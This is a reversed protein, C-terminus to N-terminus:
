LHSLSLGLLLYNQTRIIFAWTHKPRNPWVFVYRRFRAPAVSPWCTGQSALCCSGPPLCLLRSIVLLLSDTAEVIKWAYYFLPSRFLPLLWLHAQSLLSFSQLLTLSFSSHQALMKEGLSEAPTWSTTQKSILVVMSAPYAVLLFVLLHWIPNRHPCTPWVYGNSGLHLLTVTSQAQLSASGLANQALAAAQPFMQAPDSMPKVTLNKDGLLTQRCVVHGAKHGVDSFYGFWYSALESTSILWKVWPRCSEVLKILKKSLSSLCLLISKPIQFFQRSKKKLPLKFWAPTRSFFILGIKKNRNDVPLKEGFSDGLGWYLVLM